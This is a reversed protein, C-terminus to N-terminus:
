SQPRCRRSRLSSDSCPHPQSLCGGGGHIRPMRIRVHVPTLKAWPDFSPWFPIPNIMSLWDWDNISAAHVRVLVEGAKPAPVAVERLELVDPTGYREMVVAKMETANSYVDYPAQM